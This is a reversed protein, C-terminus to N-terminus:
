ALTTFLGEALDRTLLRIAAGAIDQIDEAEGEDQDDNSPM